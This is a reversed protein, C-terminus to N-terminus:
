VWGEGTLQYYLEATAFLDSSCHELVGHYRRRAVLDDPRELFRKGVAACAKAPLSRPVYIDLLKCADDKHIRLKSDSDMRAEIEAVSLERAAENFAKACLSMLDVHVDSVADELFVSLLLPPAVTKDPFQKKLFPVDFNKGNFSVMKFGPYTTKSKDSWDTSTKCEAKCRLYFQVFEEASTTVLVGQSGLAGYTTIKADPDHLLGTTELDFFFEKM